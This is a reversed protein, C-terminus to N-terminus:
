PVPVPEMSKTLRDVSETLFCRLQEPEEPSWPAFESEEARFPGNTVEHIAAYESRIIVSHWIPRSLRYVLTKGSGLDGMSILRTPHGDEDFLVIDLEGFIIHYSETKAQHRHPRIVTDRHFVIIMEHLPDDPSGHLCLRARKMDAEYAHRKLKAYLDSRVEAVADNNFFVATKV